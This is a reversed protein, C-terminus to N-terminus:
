TGTQSGLFGSCPMPDKPVPTLLYNHVVMHTSYISEPDEPLAALARLGQTMEGTGTTKSKQSQTKNYRKTFSCLANISRLPSSSNRTRCTISYLIFAPNQGMETTHETGRKVGLQSPSKPLGKENRM